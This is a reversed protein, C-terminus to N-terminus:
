CYWHKIIELGTAKGTSVVETEVPNVAYVLERETQAMFFLVIMVVIGVVALVFCALVLLPHEAVKNLWSPRTKKKNSSGM